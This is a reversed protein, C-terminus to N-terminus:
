IVRTFNLGRHCALVTARLEVFAMPHFLLEFFFVFITESMSPLFRQPDAVYLM